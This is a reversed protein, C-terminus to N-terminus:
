KSAASVQTHPQSSSPLHSAMLTCVPAMCFPVQQIQRKSSPPASPLPCRSSPCTLFLAPTGPCPAEPSLADTNREEKDLGNQSRGLAPPPPPHRTGQGMRRKRTGRGREQAPAPRACGEGNHRKPKRASNSPAGPVQKQARVLPPQYLFCRLTPAPLLSCADQLIPRALGGSGVDLRLPQPKWPKERGTHGRDGSGKDEQCRASQRPGSKLNPSPETPLGHRSTSPGWEPTGTAEDHTHASTWIQKQKQSKERSRGLLQWPFGKEIRLRGGKRGM